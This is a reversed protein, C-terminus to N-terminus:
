ILVTFSIQSFSELRSEEKMSKNIESIATLKNNNKQKHQSKVDWDVFKLDHRSLAM